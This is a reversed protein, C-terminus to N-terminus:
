RDTSVIDAPNRPASCMSPMRFNRSAVPHAWTRGIKGGVLPRRSTVTSPLNPPRQADRKPRRSPAELHLRRLVRANRRAHPHRRHVVHPQRVPRAGFNCRLRDRAQHKGREVSSRGRMTRTSPDRRASDTLTRSAGSLLARGNTSRTLSPLPLSARHLRSVVQRATSPGHAPSDIWSRPIQRSSTSGDNLPPARRACSRNTTLVTTRELSSIGSCNTARERSPLPSTLSRSCSM